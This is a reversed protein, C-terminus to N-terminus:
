RIDNILYLGLRDDQCHHVQDWFGDDEMEQDELVSALETSGHRLWRNYHVRCWGRTRSPRECDDVSCQAKVTEPRVTHRSHGAM